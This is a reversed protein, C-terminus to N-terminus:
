VWVAVVERAFACCFLIFLVSLRGPCPNVPCSLVFRQRNWDWLGWGSILGIRYSRHGKIMDHKTATMEQWRVQRKERKKGM